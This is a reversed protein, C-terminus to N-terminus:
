RLFHISYEAEWEGGPQLHVMGHKGALDESPEDDRAGMGYWPELCLLPAGKGPPTWFALTSYDPFSFRIGRGSKAGVLAVERSKLGELIIADSQFLDYDLRLTNSGHLFDHMQSYLIEGESFGPSLVSEPQAFRLEYDEFCEEPVLPCNIGPHAGIGFIMEREDENVVRYRVALGDCLLTFIVELQFRFPYSQLTEASSCLRFLLTDEGQRSASFLSQRAFGHRPMPYRKGEIQLQEGRVRGVVPFLVPASSAWFRSDRQWIYETGEEDQLSILQAGLSDVVARIGGKKLVNEM